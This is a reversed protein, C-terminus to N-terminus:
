RTPRYILRITHGHFQALELREYRHRSFQVEPVRGLLQVHTLRREAVEDFAQFAFQM